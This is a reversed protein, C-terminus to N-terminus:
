AAHSRALAPAAGDAAGVSVWVGVATGVAGVLMGVVEGVLVPVIKSVQSAFPQVAQEAAVDQQLSKTCLAPMHVLQTALKPHSATPKRGSGM